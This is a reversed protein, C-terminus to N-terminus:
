PGCLASKATELVAIRRGDGENKGDDFTAVEEEPEKSMGVYHVGHGRMSGRTGSSNFRGRGSATSRQNGRTGWNGPSM